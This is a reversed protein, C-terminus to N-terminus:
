LSSFDGEKIRFEEMANREEQVYQHQRKILENWNVLEGEFEPGDVCAFKMKGGIEVRCAGCMGTGDVMIPNLSVWLPVGRKAAVVSVFKMMVTPGIAWLRDASEKELLEDLAETVLGKRGTSGDDTTVILRDVLSQFEDLMILHERDSAGIIATVINGADKLASTIPLLPAAGVGGGIVIVKGHFSIDSPNGLPGVVDTLEDGPELRALQFTTKGVCKVIIRVAGERVGAITLPIREGQDNIKLILFQGPKSYRLISSHEIWFEYTGQVLRKKSLIKNAM